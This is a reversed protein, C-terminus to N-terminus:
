KAWRVIGSVVCCVIMVAGAVVTVLAQVHSMPDEVTDLHTCAAFVCAYGLAYWLPHVRSVTTIFRIM